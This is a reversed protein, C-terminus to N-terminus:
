RRLLIHTDTIAFPEWGPDIHLIVREMAKPPLPWLKVETIVLDSPKFYQGMTYGLMFVLVTGTVIAISIIAKNVMIEEEEGLGNEIKSKAM